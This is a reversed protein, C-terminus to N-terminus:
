YEVGKRATIGKEYPHRICKMETIYDALGLLRESPNRGTFVFEVKERCSEVLNLLKNEDILNWNIPYTIEDMVVVDCAGAMISKEIEDLIENHICTQQLKQEESMKSYFPFQVESRIIQIGAISKLSNLEGTAGSKMFQSFIVKLGAGSARVALGIAATTKGKGDGHYLHILANDM